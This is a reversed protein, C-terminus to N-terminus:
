LSKHHELDSPIIPNVFITKNNIFIVMGPKAGAPKKVHRIQTYDVPVNESQRGKSYYAAISAAEQLTREPVPKGDSSIVVHSGPIDKTHLWIDKSSATRFTLIDNDRNNKGVLIRFGDSSIFVFPEPKIKAPRYNNKRKRMFGGDILEQRIEEINEFESANEIYTLISELYAIDKDTEKLQLNKEIVATKAKAYKKFYSQANKSASLRSDLPISVYEDNYYNLVTTETDKQHINYMNATILEGYLKFHEHNEANLLDQSLKQKKLYLKDLSNTLAKLLDSSKQKLKNSSERNQFFFETAENIDNFHLEKYFEANMSLPFCHFDVPADTSSLYVCPDFIGERLHKIYTSFVSYLADISSARHCLEKAFAPSIGQIGAVLAAPTGTESLEQMNLLAMFEQKSLDYFSKKSQDPPYVYQFGPLVQRYRNVDLSIRKISDIIKNSQNDVLTINSHKGMIEIIIKKSVSFGMENNSDVAIEVIRESQIQVVSTIRGNLLHKRLLMCFGMPNQPNAMSDSILHLRAHSSNTSLLLKYTIKGSHIYFLIEDAEPQFIKEIKGNTLKQNLVYTTSATVLGDFPMATEGM